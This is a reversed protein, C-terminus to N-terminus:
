NVFLVTEAAGQTCQNPIGEVSDQPVEVASLEIQEGVEVSGLDDTTVGPQDQRLVFEADEGFVLLQPQADDVLSMCSGPGIILKGTIEETDGSPAEATYLGYPGQGETEVTITNAADDNETADESVSDEESTDPEPTEEADTEEAAAQETEQPDPDAQESNGCGTLGLAAIALAGTM